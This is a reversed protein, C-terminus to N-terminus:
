RASLKFVIDGTKKERDFPKGGDDKQDPGISYIIPADASQKLRLPKGDFPDRPVATIFEPSLLDLKEPFKQHAARYRAMALGLRALRRRADAQAATEACRSLAPLLMATLIGRPGKEFDKEFSAWREKTRYYPESTLKRYRGFLRRYEVMDAQLFFVGYLSGFGPPVTENSGTLANLDLGDALQNFVFLGFAEEMVFSRKLLRGYYIADSIRVAALDDSSLVGTDLVAQLTDTARNDIAVAVLLAILIPDEGCHEALRFMANIDRVAGAGDSQAAKVRADLALLRTMDRLHQLEPLLMEISPRGYDRDFYCGSMGAARHLLALVPAKDKLFRLLEPDKPNFPKKDPDSRDDFQVWEGWKEQLEKPWSQSDMAEFAQEYFIAANDRDPVRAPAVSLALSGAEARVAAAQQRAAVDLNWLTMLCLVVAVLMAVALKGRSWGRAPPTDPEEGVRRLGALRIWIAGIVFCVAITLLSYYLGGVALHKFNLYGAGVALLTFLLFPPLVVLVWLALQLRRSRLRALCAALTAVYLLAVALTEIALLTFGM